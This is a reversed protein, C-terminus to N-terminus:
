SNQKNKLSPRGALDVRVAWRKGGVVRKRDEAAPPPPGAVPHPGTGPPAHTASAHIELAGIDLAQAADDNVSSTPLVFPRSSPDQQYRAVATEPPFQRIVDGSDSVRVEFIVTLSRSDFRLM